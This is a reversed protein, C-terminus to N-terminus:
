EFKFGAYLTITSCKADTTKADKDKYTLNNAAYVAEIVLVNMSVGLGIGYYLGANTSSIKGMDEFMPVSVGVKPSLFAYNNDLGFRPTCIKAAVFLPLFSTKGSMDKDKFKRPLDYTAGGGLAFVNNLYQFCEFGGSIGLNTNHDEYLSHPQFGLKLIFERDHKPKAACVFSAVTSVLILVTLVKKM